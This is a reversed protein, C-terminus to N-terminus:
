FQFLFFFIPFGGYSRSKRRANKSIITKYIRRKKRNQKQTTVTYIIQIPATFFCVSIGVGSRFHFNNDLVKSFFLFFVYGTRLTYIACYSSFSHPSLNNLTNTQKQSEITTHTSCTGIYNGDNMMFWCGLLSRNVYVSIKEVLMLTYHHEQKYVILIILTYRHEQKYVILLLLINQVIVLRKWCQIYSCQGKVKKRQVYLFVKRAIKEFTTYCKKRM